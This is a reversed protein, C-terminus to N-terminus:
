KADKRYNEVKKLTQNIKAWKATKSNVLSSKIGHRNQLDTYLTIMRTLKTLLLSFEGNICPFICYIEDHMTSFILTIQSDYEYQLSTICFIIKIIYLIM